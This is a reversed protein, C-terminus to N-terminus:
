RDRRRPRAEGCGRRRARRVLDLPNTAGRGPHQDAPSCTEPPSRASWATSFRRSRHAHEGTPQYDATVRGEAAVYQAASPYKMVCADFDDQPFAYVVVDSESAVSCLCNPADNYREVGLMDGAGRVDRLRAAEGAEDWLSVTGQQIVFLQLRHPEGQWLIYQNPEYFRVRGRAALELLDTM